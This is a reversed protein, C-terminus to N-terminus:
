LDCAQMGYDPVRCAPMGAQGAPFPRIAIPIRQTCLLKIAMEKDAQTSMKNM